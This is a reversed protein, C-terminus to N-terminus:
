EAIIGIVLSNGSSLATQHASIGWKNSITIARMKNRMM